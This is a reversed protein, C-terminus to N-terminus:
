GRCVEQTPWPRKVVEQREALAPPSAFVARPRDNHALDFVKGILAAERDPDHACAKRIRQISEMYPDARHAYNWVPFFLSPRSSM